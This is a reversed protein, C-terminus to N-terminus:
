AWGAPAQEPVDSGISRLSLCRGIRFRRVASSRELCCTAKGHILAFMVGRLMGKALLEALAKKDVQPANARWLKVMDELVHACDGIIGVDGSGEM